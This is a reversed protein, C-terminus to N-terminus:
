HEGEIVLSDLIGRLDTRDLQFMKSLQGESLIGQSYAHSVLLSTKHPLLRSLYDFEGIPPQKPPAFGRSKISDYTGRKLLKQDELWRCMAESSVHFTQAMVVLHNPSFVGKARYEDFYRRIATAPMLFACAFHNAFREEKITDNHQNEFIDIHDPVSIAHGLEHAATFARRTAPHKSNLLICNGLDPQQLFVGSVRSDIPRCYVRCGLEFELISMLDAIPAQGIGLLQRISVAADEAQTKIDRGRILFKPLQPLSIRNDLLAELETSAQALDLLLDVAEKGAGTIAQYRSDRRYKVLVKKASSSPKLVTAASIKYLKCINVFEIDKVRRQGKEIAVLTTRAIDLQQAAAEQTLGAEIRSEKLRVGLKIPDINILTSM